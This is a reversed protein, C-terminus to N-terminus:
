MLDRCGRESTVHKLLRALIVIEAKLTTLLEGKDHLLYPCKRETLRTLAAINM